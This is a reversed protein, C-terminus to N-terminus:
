SEKEILILDAQDNRLAILTNKILYAKPEKMPGNLGTKIATGKIFGLDMLRRRAAGRCERSIGVVIAKEGELLESLRIKSAEAEEESNLPKIGVNSAVITSLSIERGESEFTVVHENIEKIRLYQGMHLKEKVLQKYIVDPEDELHTIKASQGVKLGSLPQGITDIIEGSQTPIPDGHPDYRPSGLAQYLAEAADADMQHEMKEARKHWESKDIGTKESLYKEWLRHVRIIRLAYDKGDDTLAITNQNVTILGMGAMHEILSVLRRDNIKLAGAMANLSAKRGSYEVHYLQKLVDEIETKMRENRNILWKFVDTSYFLYSLGVLGFFILLAIKPDPIM